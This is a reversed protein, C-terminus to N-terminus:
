QTLPEDSDVGNGDKSEEPKFEDRWEEFSGSQSEPREVVFSGPVLPKGGPGTVEQWVTYGKERNLTRMGLTTCPLKPIDPITAGNKVAELARDMLISELEVAKLFTDECRDGTLERAARIVHQLTESEAVRKSITDRKCQLAEAARSIVGGGERLANAVQRDTYKQNGHAKRRGAM